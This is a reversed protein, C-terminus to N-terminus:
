IGLQQIANSAAKKLSLNSDNSWRYLKRNAMHKNTSYQFYNIFSNTAWEVDDLKSLALGLNQWSAWRKPNLKLSLALTDRAIKYDGRLYLAYGLNGLVEADFPYARMAEVLITVAEAFRNQSILKIGEKNLSRALKRDKVTPTIDGGDRPKVLPSVREIYGRDEDNSPSIFAVGMYKLEEPTLWKIEDPPTIVVQGIIHPPVGLAKLFRVMDVTESKASLSEGNYDSISHVGVRASSAVWRESGAAFPLFCASACIAGDSVFTRVGSERVAIALYYGGAVSGGKSNLMLLSVRQGSQVASNIFRRFRNGDVPEIEGELLLAITGDQTAFPRFNAAWAVGQFFLLIFIIKITLRM